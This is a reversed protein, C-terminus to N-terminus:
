FTGRVGLTFDTGYVDIGTTKAYEPTKSGFRYSIEPTDTLNNATGYFSLRKTFRYEVEASVVTRSSSWNRPVTPDDGPAEQMRGPRNHWNLRASYKPRAFSVGWNYIRPSYRSFDAANTGSLNLATMNAFVQLSEGWRGLFFLSQKYSLELGRIRANGVNEKTSIDYGAFEGPVAEPIQYQELREPTVPVRIGGFFNKIQKEFVGITGVGWKPHYSELSIDVGDSTWPMLGSNVVTIIRRDPAVAPDPITLGPIIERLDPRGLTRAYAARVLFNETITYTANLSPYYDQYTKKAHAGRYVYRLKTRELGDTTIPILGGTANRIYNGNADRLFTGAINDLPGDGEDLTHEFRVGTVVWLKNEFARWDARLYAASISEKLRKSPRVSGSYSNAENLVFYEPHERMIDYIKALSVWQVQHGPFYNQATASYVPDVVNYNSAQRVAATTGPRFDWRSFQERYDREQSAYQVGTMLRLGYGFERSLKAKFGLKGDSSDSPRSVVRSLSYLGGDFVDVPVGAANTATLTHPLPSKPVAAYLGEGRLVLGSLELDVRNFFGQDIDRRANRSRSVSGDAELKWAGRELYYGYNVQVTKSNSQATAPNGMEALGNAVPSGQVLNAGGTTGSGFEINLRNRSIYSVNDVYLASVRMRHGDSIRWQSGFAIDTARYLQEQAGIEAGALVYTSDNWRTSAGRYQYNRTASGGSVTFAFAKNVPREYAFRLGAQLPRASLEPRSGTRKDLETTGFSRSNFTTFVRATLQPQRREFANRSIVNVSGGMANAPLDPTPVKTVEIRSINNLRLAELGVARTPNGDSGMAPSAVDSGDVTVLTSAGPLGRISIGVGVNASYDASVGPIFKVFEAINGEGIDGFEDATVVNKINPAYRQENLAVAQASLRREEVSFADLMAVDGPKVSATRADLEFDRQVTGAAPVAVRATQTGLGTYQAVLEVEGPPVQLRYEGSEDTFAEINTGKVTVRATNLNRGSSANFVRGRVEGTAAVQAQSWNAAAFIAVCMVLMRRLAAPLPQIM